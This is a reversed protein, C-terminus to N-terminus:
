DGQVSSIRVTKKTFPVVGPIMGKTEFLERCGLVSPRRELLHFYDHRKIFAYFVDWDEVTPVTSNQISVAARKGTSKTVGEQEMQQILEAQAQDMLDMVSKVQAELARKQERLQHLHDIKDGLSSM